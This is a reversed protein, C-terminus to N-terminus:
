ILTIIVIAFIVILSQSAIGVLPRDRLSLNPHLNVHFKQLYVLPSKPFFWYFVWLSDPLIAGLILLFLMALSNFDFQINLVYFLVITGALIDIAIKFLDWIIAKFDMRLRSELPRGKPFDVSSLNYEWHPIMDMLYHSVLSFLFVLIPQSWVPKSVAAAVIIHTGLIM